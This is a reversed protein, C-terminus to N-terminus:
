WKCYSVDWKLHSFCSEILKWLFYRLSNKKSDIIVEKELPVTGITIAPIYTLIFGVLISNQSYILNSIIRVFSHQDTRMQENLEIAYKQLANPDPTSSIRSLIFHADRQLLLLDSSLTFSVFYSHLSEFSPLSNTLTYESQQNRLSSLTQSLQTEHHRYFLTSGISQMIICHVVCVSILKDQYGQKRCFSYFVRKTEFRM